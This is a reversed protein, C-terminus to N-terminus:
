KIELFGDHLSIQNPRIKESLLILHWRWDDRMVVDDKFPNGFLSREGQEDRGYVRAGCFTGDLLNSIWRVFLADCEYFEYADIV